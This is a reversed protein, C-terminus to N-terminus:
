GGRSAVLMTMRAKRRPRSAPNQSVPRSPLRVSASQMMVRFGARPAAAASDAGHERPHQGGRAAQRVPQLHGASVLASGPCVPTQAKPRDPHQMVVLQRAFAGRSGYTLAAAPLGAFVPVGCLKHITGM